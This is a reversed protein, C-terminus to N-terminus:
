PAVVIACNLDSVIIDEMFAGLVNFNVTMEGTLVNHAVGNLKMRDRCQILGGIDEGFSMQGSTKPLENVFEVKMDEDSKLLIWDGDKDLYKLKYNAPNLEFGKSIEKEIASFTASLIPITFKILDDAYEAKVTLTNEDPFAGKNEENTDIQDTHKRKLTALPVYLNRAPDIMSEQSLAIPTTKCKAELPKSSSKMGKFIRLEDGLEGGSAYKFNPLCKKLSLLLTELLEVYNPDEEWLFEFVYNLDGTETSRVKQLEMGTGDLWVRGFHMTFNWELKKMDEDCALLIWDGDEDLYKLKYSSPELKFRKGIEEVIAAFTASSIPCTFKIMDDACEVKITVTNEDLNKERYNALPDEFAEKDEENTDSVDNRKRKLSVYLNKAAEIIGEQSLSIPTTKCKAKLPRLSGEGVSSRKELAESESSSEAGEFITFCEIKRKTSNDVDIIRLEDGLEGGSAYKFNPLCRKLSLLISEMLNGYDPVEQWLFEFVYNFDGTETSRLCIVFCSCEFSDGGEPDFYNHGLIMLPENNDSLKSLRRMFRPKRNALTRGVLGEGMKLPIDQCISSHDCFCEYVYGDKYLEEDGIYQVLKLGLMRKTPSDELSSSFAVHEEDKYAIWVQVLDVHFKQWIIELAKVIADRAHQLGSVTEYPPTACFTKLGEKEFAKILEDYMTVIPYIHYSSCEVVGVCCTGSPDLVPVMVSRFLGCQVAISELPTTRHVRLDPLLEPMRNMFARAPAGNTIIAPDEEVELPKNKNTDDHISYRYRVSCSRYTQGADVTESFAFPQDSTTLLWRGATTKVPAWFQVLLMTDMELSNIISTMKHRIFTPSTALFRSLVDAPSSSSPPFDAM